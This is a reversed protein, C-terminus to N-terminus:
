PSVSLELVDRKNFPVIRYELILGMFNEPLDPNNLPTNLYLNDIRVHPLYFAIQERIKSKLDEHTTSANQRFLYTRIGVGFNADMTREGPNTFVIMKINQATVAKIDQLLEYPGDLSSVLLPLRAALGSM